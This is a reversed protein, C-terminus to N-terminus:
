QDPYEPDDKITTKRMKMKKGGYRVSMQMADLGDEKKKRHGSSQDILIASDCHPFRVSLIDYVDEM